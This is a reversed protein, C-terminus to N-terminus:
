APDLHDDWLDAYVNDRSSAEPGWIEQATFRVSYVHQPSPGTGAANSDAFVFVGHDRDVIGRCGRLYRPSRTHGVPHLNRAIVADGPKFKPAVAEDVRTSGGKALVDAVRDKTLIKV